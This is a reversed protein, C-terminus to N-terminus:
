RCLRLPQTPALALTLPQTPALILTRPQVPSPLLAPLQTRALNALSLTPALPWTEGQCGLGATRDWEVAMYVAASWLASSAAPSRRCSRDLQQLQHLGNQGAARLAAVVSAENRQLVAMPWFSSCSPQTRHTRFLMLPSLNPVLLLTLPLPQAQLLKLPQTLVQLRVLPQTPPLLLTLPRTPAFRVTLQQTPAPLLIVPPSPDLLWTRPQTPALLSLPHTPAHVSALPQTLPLVLILPRASAFSTLQRALVLLTLPRSLGTPPPRCSHRLLLQSPRTPLYALLLSRSTRPMWSLLPLAWVSM